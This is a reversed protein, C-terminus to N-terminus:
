RIRIVDVVAEIRAGPPIAPLILDGGKKAVQQLISSSSRPLVIALIQFGAGIDTPRKKGIRVGRVKWTGDSQPVIPNPSGLYLVKLDSLIFLWLDQGPPLTAKGSITIEPGVATNNGHPSLLEVLPKTVAGGLSVGQLNVGALDVGQLNAGTLNAGQLTAGALRASMLNANALDAERLDAGSLNAGRLKAGHLHARSLEARTLDASSLDARDLRANALVAENLHARVLIAGELQAGALSAGELHTGSLDANNLGGGSLDAKRLDSNALQLNRKGVNQLPPNALITLAAQVDQARTALPQLNSLGRAGGSDKSRSAKSSLSTRQRVYVTLIDSIVRRDEPSGEAVRGLSYISGLRVDIHSSGLQDIAKSFREAMQGQQTLTLQSSGIQVQRWTLFAGILVFLIGSVQIASLLTTRIDNKAQLFESVTLQARNQGLERTILYNPFIFVSAFLIIIIVASLIVILAAPGFRVTFPLLGALFVGLLVTALLLPWAAQLSRRDTSM